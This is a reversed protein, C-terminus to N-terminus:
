YDLLTIVRSPSLKEAGRLDVLNVLFVFAAVDAGCRQVLEKAALATGGTAILDDVVVVQDGRELADRHIEIADSGYELEYEARHTAAPLKGPKRVPVFGVGLKDALAAGFMFGRSEIGVVAHLVEGDFPEAMLAICARFAEVDALLPTIDKFLIGESPFDPVDRIRSRLLSRREETM